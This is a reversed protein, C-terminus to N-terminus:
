SRSLAEIPCRMPNIKVCSHYRSSNDVRVTWNNNVHHIPMLWNVTSEYLPNVQSHARIMMLLFLSFSHPLIFAVATMPFSDYEKSEERRGAEERMVCLHMEGEKIHHNRGVVM